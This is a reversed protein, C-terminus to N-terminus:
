GVNTNKRIVTYDENKLTKYTFPIWSANIASFLITILTACSYAISYIAAKEMGCYRSIMIRDSTSLINNALYHPILILNFCIAYKWYSINILCRGRLLMYIMLIFGIVIIPVTDGVIKYFYKNSDKSIVLYLSLGARAIVM